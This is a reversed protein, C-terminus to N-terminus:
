SPESSMQVDSSITQPNNETNQIPVQSDSINDATRKSMLVIPASAVTTEARHYQKVSSSLAAKSKVKAKAKAQQEMSDIEAWISRVEKFLQNLWTEDALLENLIITTDKHPDAVKKDAVRRACELFMLYKQHAVKNYLAVKKQCIRCLLFDKEHPIRPDPPSGELTTGNYPQGYLLVRAYIKAQQCGACFKGKYESPLLDKLVNVCPWTSIATVVSTKWKTTFLLRRKREETIEDVTKVNSLFYDDQEQFIETLFNSDLAQSILTQIYVEFNDQYKETEKMFKDINESDDIIMEDRLFEVITETKGQQWFKVPVQQYIHRNQSVWASYTPINRYLTKGSSKFPQYKQLLTKGDIRWLPPDEEEDLDTKIVVFEGSADESNGISHKFPSIDIDEDSAAAVLKEDIRCSLKSSSNSNKSPTEHKKRTSKKSIIAEGSSYGDEELMKRIKKTIVPRARKKRKEEEDGVLKVAPTWAPDSDSDIQEEDNDFYDIGQQRDLFQKVSTKEKAKRRSTERRPPLLLPDVEEIKKSSKKEAEAAAAAAAAARRKRDTPGGPKIPRGKKGKGEPKVTVIEINSTNNVNQVKKEMKKSPFPFDDDSTFGDDSSDFNLKKREKPLPFYRPDNAYDIAPTGKVSTEKVLIPKEQPKVSEGNSAEAPKSPEVPIYLKSRNWTAKRGGRIAPPPSPDREGQLFKLYSTMFGTNPDRNPQKFDKNIQNMNQMLQQDQQLFGLEEEINPVIVKPQDDRVEQNYNTNQNTTNEGFGIPTIEVSSQFEHSHHPHHGAPIHFAPFYPIPPPAHHHSVMLSQHQHAPTGVFNSSHHLSSQSGFAASATPFMKTAPPPINWREFEFYGNQQQQNAANHHAPPPIRSLYETMTTGGTIENSLPTGHGGKELNKRKKNVSDAKRREEVQKEQEATGVSTAATTHQQLCPGQQLTQLNKVISMPDGRCSSLDQLAVQNAEFYSQQRDASVNMLRQVQQQVPLSQANIDSTATNAGTYVSFKRNGNATQRNDNEWCVQQKQTQSFDQQQQREYTKSEASYATKNNETTGLARTIVSSYAVQGQSAPRPVTVDLPSPPAVQQTVGGKYSAGNTCQSGNTEHQQLPSPSSMTALPSNYMPYAPSPVHGLPSAQSHTQLPSPRRPVVVSCDPGNQTSTNSSYASDTSTASKSRGPHHYETDSTSGTLYHRYSTTQQQQQQQQNLVHFTQQQQQQQQQSHQLNSSTRQNTTLKGNTNNCNTTSNTTYSLNRSEMISFSIPSSQSNDHGQQENRRHEIGHSGLDPYIKTQGKTQINQQTTTASVTKNPSAFNGNRTGQKDQIVQASGSRVPASLFITTSTTSRSSPQPIRYEKGSSNSPTSVICSQQHQLSQVKENETVSQGGNGTGPYSDSLTDSNFTPVQHFFTQNSSVQSTSITSKVSVTPSQPRVSISKKTDTPCGSAKFDANCVSPTTIQSANINNITQTTSFHANFTNEYGTGSSKTSPPGPSSPVVSEHPLIGFPSPLQTNNQSTWALTSTTPSTSAGQQEFFTAQHASSYNERLTSIDSETTNQKTASVAQAQALVQRHQTVYHAQKTNPHFLPSFVEYGVSPPSLFGGPNFPSPQGALTATTHAAQLLLQSTTTSPVAPTAATALHHPVFDSTTTSTSQFTGTSSGATLRNYSTYWPGVPDM